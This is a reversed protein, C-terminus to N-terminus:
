RMYGWRRLQNRIGRLMRPNRAGEASAVRRWALRPNAGGASSANALYAALPAALERGSGRRRNAYERWDRRMALAALRRHARTTVVLRGQRWSWIRIPFVTGAYSVGLSYAARDDFGVFEPVGDGNADRLRPRTNGWLASTLEWRGSASSWWAIRSEYCCHAGGWYSDLIVEPYRDGDLDVVRLASASELMNDPYEYDLEAAGFTRFPREAGGSVTLALGETDIMGNMARGSTYTVRADVPGASATLAGAGQGAAVPAVLGLIV